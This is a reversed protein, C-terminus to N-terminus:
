TCAPLFVILETSFLLVHLPGTNRFCKEQFMNLSTTTFYYITIREYSSSCKGEEPRKGKGASLVSFATKELRSISDTKM